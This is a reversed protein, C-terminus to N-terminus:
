VKKSTTTGSSAGIIESGDVKGQVSGFNVGEVGNTKPNAIINEASQHEGLRLSHADNLNESSEAYKSEARKVWMRNHDGMYNKGYARHRPSQRGQVIIADHSRVEPNLRARKDHM